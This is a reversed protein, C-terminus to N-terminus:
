GEPQEAHAELPLTVVVRTGQAPSSDIAVTGQLAEVRNRMGALGLRARGGSGGEGPMGPGCDTIRITLAMETATVEVAKAAGPAHKSANTLGEQVVRYVCTKTAKNVTHPLPAPQYEVTEGTLDEHRLIALRVTEELSASTIEPLSLGSSINRLDKLADETISVTSEIEQEPPPGPRSPDRLKRASMSLKLMALTLMQIPGDHIDSGIRGLFQENAESAILRARDAVIRLEANQAALQRAETIHQGLESRQRAITWAGRRVILYLAALMFVTTLCVVLWTTMQSSQLETALADANEYIEGVALVRDTGTHYLPAYVEILSMDLTQEYASERSVLDEYEAVIEGHAARQVDTSVFRQGILDRTTSYLVLGDERWIKISVLTNGLPTGIFLADLEQRREESLQGDPGIDQVRPELFGRMFSAGQAASTVLVSHKVQQTVWSGLVAMTICLVIGAALLFQSSISLDELFRFKSWLRTPWPVL